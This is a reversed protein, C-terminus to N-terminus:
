FRFGRFMMYHRNEILQAKSGNFKRDTPVDCSSRKGHIRHRAPPLDDGSVFMQEGPSM